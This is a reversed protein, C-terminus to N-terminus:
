RTKNQHTTGGSANLYDGSYKTNLEFPLEKDFTAM